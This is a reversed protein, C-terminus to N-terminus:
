SYTQYCLIKKDLYKMKKFFLIANKKLFFTIREIHFRYIM